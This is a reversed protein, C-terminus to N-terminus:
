EVPQLPVPRTVEALSLRVVKRLLVREQDDLSFELQDGAKLEWRRRLEVPITLQGKSTLTARLRYPRHLIM